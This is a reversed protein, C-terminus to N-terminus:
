LLTYLLCWEANASWSVQPCWLLCIFLLTGQGESAAAHRFHFSGFVHHLWYSHATSWKRVEQTDTMMEFYLGFHFGIDVCHVTVHVYRKHL